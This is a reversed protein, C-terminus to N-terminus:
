WSRERAREVRKQTTLWLRRRDTRINSKTPIHKNRQSDRSRQSLLGCCILPFHPFHTPSSTNWLWRSHLYHVIWSIFGHFFLSSLLSLSLSIHSSPLLSLSHPFSFKKEKMEKYKIIWVKESAEECHQWGLLNPTHLFEEGAHLQYWRWIQLDLSNTLTHTEFQLINHTLILIKQSKSITTQKSTPTSMCSSTPLNKKQSNRGREGIERECIYQRRSWKKGYIWSLVKQTRTHTHLHTRM